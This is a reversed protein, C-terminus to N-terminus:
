VEEAPSSVRVMAAACGDQSNAVAKRQASLYDERVEDYLQEYYAVNERAKETRYALVFKRLNDIAANAVQAAVTADQLTVKLSLAFTKKEVTASISKALADAVMEQQPTLHLSDLQRYGEATEFEDPPVIWGKIRAIAVRPAGLVHSWWPKRMYHAMYDYLDTQITKGGRRITVPMDFLGIYFNTSRIVSPYLDPHMADSLALSNMSIGALNALTNLGSGANSRTMLEPAVVARATYSRPISWALLIGAVMGCLAWLLIPKWHKMAKRLYPKLDAVERKRAGGFDDFEDFDDTGFKKRLIIYFISLLIQLLFKASHRCRLFNRLVHIHILFFNNM